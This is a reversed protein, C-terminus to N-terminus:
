ELLFRVLKANARALPSREMLTCRRCVPAVMVQPRYSELAPRVLAHVRVPTAYAHDMRTPVERPVATLMEALQWRSPRRLSHM